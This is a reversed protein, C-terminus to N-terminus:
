HQKEDVVTNKTYDRENLNGCWVGDSVDVDANSYGGVTIGACGASSFISLKPCHIGLTYVASLPLEFNLVNSAPQLSKLQSAHSLVRPVTQPGANVSSQFVASGRAKKKKLMLESKDVVM